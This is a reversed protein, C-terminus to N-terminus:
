QHLRGVLAGMELRALRVCENLWVAPGCIVTLGVQAWTPKPLMHQPGLHGWIFAGISAWGIFAVTLAIVVLTDLPDSM